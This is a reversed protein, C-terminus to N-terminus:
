RKFSVVLFMKFREPAFVAHEINAPMLISEGAQLMYKDEGITIEGVGDLAIVLADGKSDHSSIEEGKEFAFLTLSHSKDQALTKSSVQGEQYSILSEFPLVTAPSFNKIM